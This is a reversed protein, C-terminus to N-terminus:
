EQEDDNADSFYEFSDPVKAEEDGEDDEDVATLVGAAAAAGSGIGADDASGGPTHPNTLGFPSRGPGMLFQDVVPNGTSGGNRNSDVLGDLLNRGGSRGGARPHRQQQGAVPARERPTISIFLTPLRGAPPFRPMAAHM